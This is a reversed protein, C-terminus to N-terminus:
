KSADQQPKQQAKMLEIVERLLSNETNLHEFEKNREQLLLRTQDLEHACQTETLYINCKVNNSHTCNEAYNLVKEENQYLPLYKPSKSITETTSIFNPMLNAM